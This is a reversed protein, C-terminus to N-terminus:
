IPKGGVALITKDPHIIMCNVQKFCFIEQSSHKSSIFLFFKSVSKEHQLIRTCMGTKHDWVRITQDYGATVLISPQIMTTAGSTASM